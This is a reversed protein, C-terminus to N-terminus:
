REYVREEKKKKTTIPKKYTIKKKKKKPKTSYADSIVRRLLGKSVRPKIKHIYYLYGGDVYSLWSLRSLLSQALSLCVHRKAKKSQYNIKKFINIRLKVRGHTFRFGLFDIPFKATQKVQVNPKLKLGLPELDRCINYYVNKLYRKNNGMLLMDDVYRVYFPIKYQEKIKHDLDQLIWNSFWQSYYSGIPLDPESGVVAECLTLLRKDKIRKRLFDILVASSTSPYFKQIDLKVFYKYKQYNRKIIKRGYLIGRKDVNGICYEYMSKKIFPKAAEVIIYDLIRNPFFPSITLKRKKGREFITRNYTSSLLYENKQLMKLIQEAFYDINKLVIQVEARRKKHKAALLIIEKIKAINLFNEFVHKISKM